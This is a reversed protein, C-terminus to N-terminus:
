QTACKYTIEFEHFGAMKESVKFKKGDERMVKMYGEEDIEVVGRVDEGNDRVYIIYRKKGEPKRNLAKKGMIYCEEKGESEKEEKCAGVVTPVRITNLGNKEDYKDEIYITPLENWPGELEIENM